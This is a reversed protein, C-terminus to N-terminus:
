ILSAKYQFENANSHPQNEVLPEAQPNLRSESVSLMSGYTKSGALLKSTPAGNMSDVHLKSAQLEIDSQGSLLKISHTSEQGLYEREYYLETKSLSILAITNAIFLAINSGQQYHKKAFSYPLAMLGFASVSPLMYRRIPGEFENFENSYFWSGAMVLAFSTLYRFRKYKKNYRLHPKIDTVLNLVGLALIAGSGLAMDSRSFNVYVSAGRYRLIPFLVSYLMNESDQLYGFVHNIKRIIKKAKHGDKDVHIIPDDNFARYRNFLTLTDQSIFRRFSPSYERARLYLLVNEDNLMEGNYAEDDNALNLTYVRSIASFGRVYLMPLLMVAIMFLIVTVTLVEALINVLKIRKNM